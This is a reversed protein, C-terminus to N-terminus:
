TCIPSVFALLWLTIASIGVRSVPFSRVTSTNFSHSAFLFRSKLSCLPAAPTPVPTLPLPLHSRHPSEFLIPDQFSPVDILRDVM